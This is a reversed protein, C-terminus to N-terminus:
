VFGDQESWKIQQSLVALPTDSGSSKSCVQLLKVLDDRVKSFESGWPILKSWTLSDWFKRKHWSPKSGPDLAYVGKKAGTVLCAVRGCFVRLFDALQKREGAKVLLHIQTGTNSFRFVKIKYRDAYGYIKKSIQAAHKRHLLSLKGTAQQSQIVVHVAAKPSFPRATKRKNLSGQGGHVVRPHLSQKLHSREPSGVPLADSLDRDKETKGNIIAKNIGM